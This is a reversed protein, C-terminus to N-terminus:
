KGQDIARLAAECDRLLALNDFYAQQNRAVIDKAGGAWKMVESSILMQDSAKAALNDLALKVIPLLREDIKFDIEM